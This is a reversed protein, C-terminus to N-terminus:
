GGRKSRPRHDLRTATLPNRKTRKSWGARTAENGAGTDLNSMTDNHEIFHQHKSEGMPVRGNAWEGM